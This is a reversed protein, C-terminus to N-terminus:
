RSTMFRSFARTNLLIAGLLIAGQVIPVYFSPVHVLILGNEIVGLVIAGLVTGVISGRGGFLDTGGLVVATIVTLGFTTGGANSSGSGLRTAILIGAVSALVGSLVYVSFGVARVNVGSRRLSEGNSGLAVVYRGFPTKELVVWGVIVVAAACLVSVPIPGVRGQGLGSVWSRSSIPISYGGTILLALGTLLSLTALTVIFAQLKQYQSFYGNIGGIVAGGALVVFFALTTDWGHSLLLAILAGAVAVTSGVALDIGASIIVMTMATAVIVNPAVNELVIRLNPWSLFGEAASGFYIMIAILVVAISITQVHRLLVASMRAAQGTALREHVQPSNTM